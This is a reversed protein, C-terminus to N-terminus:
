HGDTSAVPAKESRAKKSDSLAAAPQPSKAPKRQGVRAENHTIAGELETQLAELETKTRLKPRQPDTGTTPQYDLKDTPERSQRVFDKAEPVDAWLRTNKITDLPTGATKKLPRQAKPAAQEKQTEPPNVTQARLNQAYFVVGTCAALALAIRWLSSRSYPISKTQM